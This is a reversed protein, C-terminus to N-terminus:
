ESRKPFEEPWISRIVQPGLREVWYKFGEPNALRWLRAEDPHKDLWISLSWKVRDEDTLSNKGFSEAIMPSPLTRLCKLRMETEGDLSDLGCLAETAVVASKAAKVAKRYENMFEDKRKEQAKKPLDQHDKVVPELWIARQTEVRLGRRERREARLDLLICTVFAIAIGLAVGVAIDLVLMLDHANM